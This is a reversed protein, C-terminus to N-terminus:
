ICIQWPCPKIGQPGNNNTNNLSKGVTILLSMIVSSRRMSENTLLHTQILTHLCPQSMKSEHM